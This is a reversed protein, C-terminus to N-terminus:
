DGIVAKVGAYVSAAGAALPAIQAHLKQVRSVAQLLGLEGKDNTTFLQAVLLMLRGPARGPQLRQLQQLRLRGLLLGTFFALGISLVYELVERLERLDQPLLPVKDIMATVQLMALVALTAMVFGCLASRLMRRPHWLLLAFGFPLPILMSAIRLYLPKLDYVFLLVAHAAVLLLLTPLLTLLLSVWYSRAQTAPVDPAGLGSHAASWELRAQLEAIRQQDALAAAQAEALSSELAEIRAQLPKFLYFDRRCTQCVMAQASVSATCYPCRSDANQSTAGHPNMGQPNMDQSNM